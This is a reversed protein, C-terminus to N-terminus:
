RPPAISEKEVYETAISVDAGAAGGIMELSLKAAAEGLAVLPERISTLQLVGFTKSLLEDHGVISCDRPVSLGRAQLVTLAAYAEYDTVAVIATPRPRMALMKEIAPAVLDIPASWEHFRPVAHTIVLPELGAQRMADRYALWHEREEGFFGEYLDDRYGEHTLLAIRRHGLALLREVARKVSARREFRVVPLGPIVKNVVQIVPLKRSARLKKLLKANTGGDADFAPTLLIADAQRALALEIHTKEDAVLNGHSFTLVSYGNTELHGQLGSLFPGLLRHHFIERCLFAVLYSKSTVLSKAAYNPTYGMKRAVAVIRAKTVESVGVTSKTGSLAASVVQQSVGLRAAIDSMTVRKGSSRGGM